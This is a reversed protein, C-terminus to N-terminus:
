FCTYHVGTSHRDADQNVRSAIAHSIVTTLQLVPLPLPYDVSSTMISEDIFTKLGYHRASLSIPPSRGSRSTHKFLLQSRLEGYIITAVLALSEEDETKASEASSESPAEGVSIAEGAEDAETDETVTNEGLFNEAFSAPEESFTSTNAFDNNSITNEEIPEDLVTKQIPLTNVLASAQNPLRLTPSGQSDPLTLEASSNRRLAPLLATEVTSLPPRRKLHNKLILSRTSLRKQIEPIVIKNSYGRTPTAAKDINAVSSPKAPPKLSQTNTRTAGEIFHQAPEASNGIQGDTTDSETTQPILEHLSDSPSNSYENNSSETLRFRTHEREPIDTSNIYESERVFDNEVVDAETALQAEPALSDPLASSLDPQSLANPARKKQISNQRAKPPDAESINQVRNQDTLTPSSPFVSQTSPQTAKEIEPAQESIQRNTPLQPQQASSDSTVDVPTTTDAQAINVPKIQESDSGEGYTDSISENLLRHAISRKHLSHPTNSQPLADPIGSGAQLKDLPSDNQEPTTKKWTEPRAHAWAIHQQGLPITRGLPRRQVTSPSSSPSSLQPSAIVTKPVIATQETVSAEAIRKETTEEKSTKEKSTKKSPESEIPNKPESPGVPPEIIRPQDTYLRDIAPHNPGPADSTTRDSTLADASLPSKLFTDTTVPKNPLLLKSNEQRPVDTEPQEVNGSLPFKALLQSLADISELRQVSVSTSAPQPMLLPLGILQAAIVLQGQGSSSEAATYRSLTATFKGLPQRAFASNNLLAGLSRRRGLVTNLKHGIGLVM